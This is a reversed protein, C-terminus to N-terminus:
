KPYIMDNKHTRQKRKHKIQFRITKNRGSVATKAMYGWGPKFLTLTTCWINHSQGRGIYVNNNKTARPEQM